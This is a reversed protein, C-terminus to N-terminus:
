TGLQLITVFYLWRRLLIHKFAINTPIPFAVRYRVCLIEKRRNRFTHVPARCIPCVNRQGRTKIWRLVCREHFSHGCSLYCGGSSTSEFCISCDSAYGIPHVFRLPNMIVCAEKPTDLCNLPNLTDISQTHTTRRMWQFCRQKITQYWIVAEIHYISVGCRKTKCM